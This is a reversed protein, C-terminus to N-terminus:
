KGPLAPDTSLGHRKLKDYLTKRPIGLHEAALSVQQRAQKMADNILAKEYEDVLDPLARLPLPQDTHLPVGLVHRDAANKLERVNGPWHHAQLRARTASDLPKGERRYRLEAQRIFHEFLLLIDERRERLPPLTLTIVNLRYYLDDRFRGQEALQQLDAKTAAVVRCDVTIAENSGLRELTREQLVRLLKVQLTLPMTELEDLFLTGGSAHEIKGIRRKQAGTYAGPEHGFIESEFVSEPLAGCNLAVFPRHRRQSHTHLSRAVVEKGTGTEGLVLIDADTDALAEIMQRIQIMQISNGLLLSDIGLQQTLAQRLQRNELTLARKEQARRIADLLTDAPYPKAIFDYAGDRIANVAMSIDGHGTILIVPLTPDISQVEKLLALGDMGPLRVDTVIVGAFDAHLVRLASEATEFTRSSIGALDLTQATALRILEEDDIFCVELADPKM